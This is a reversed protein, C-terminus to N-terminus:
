FDQSSGHHWLTPLESVSIQSINYHASLYDWVFFALLPVGNNKNYNNDFQKVYM